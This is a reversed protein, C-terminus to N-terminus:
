VFVRWTSMNQASDTKQQKRLHTLQLVQPLLPHEREEYIQRKRVSAPYAKSNAMQKQEDSTWVSHVPKVFCVIVRVNVGDVRVRM